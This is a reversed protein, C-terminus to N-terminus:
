FTNFVSNYFHGNEKKVMSTNDKASVEFFLTISVIETISSSIMRGWVGFLCYLLESVFLPLIFRFMMGLVLASVSFSFRIFVASTVGQWYFISTKYLLALEGLTRWITKWITKGLLSNLFITKLRIIYKFLTKRNKTKM